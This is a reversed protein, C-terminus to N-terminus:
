EKPPPPLESSQTSDVNPAKDAPIGKIKCNNFRLRIMGKGSVLYQTPDQALCPKRVLLLEESAGPVYLSLLKLLKFIM